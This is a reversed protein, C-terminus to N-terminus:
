FEDRSGVKFANNLEIAIEQAARLSKVTYQTGIFQNDEYVEIDISGSTGDNVRWSLSKGSQGALYATRLSLAVQEAFNRTNFSLVQEVLENGRYMCIMYTGNSKKVVKYVASGHLHEM